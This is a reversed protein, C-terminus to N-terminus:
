HAIKMTPHEFHGVETSSLELIEAKATIKHSVNNIDYQQIISATQKRLGKTYDNKNPQAKIYPLMMTKM